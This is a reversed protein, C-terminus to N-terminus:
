GLKNKDLCDYSVSVSDEIKSVLEQKNNSIAKLTDFFLNCILITQYEIKEDLTNKNRGIFVSFMSIAFIFDVYHADNDSLVKENDKFAKILDIQSDSLNTLSNAAIDKIYSMIDLLIKENTDLEKDILFEFKLLSFTYFMVINNKLEM